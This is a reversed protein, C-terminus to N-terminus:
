RREDLWSAAHEFFSRGNVSYGGAAGKQGASTVEAARDLMGEDILACILTERYSGRLIYHEHSLVRDSFNCRERADEREVCEDLWSLFKEAAM